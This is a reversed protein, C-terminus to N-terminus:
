NREWGQPTKHFRMRFEYGPRSWGVQRKSTALIVANSIEAHDLQPRLFWLWIAQVEARLMKGKGKPIDTLYSLHIVREGESTEGARMGLLRFENGTTLTISTYSEVKEGCGISVFTGALFALLLPLRIHCPARPARSSTLMKPM